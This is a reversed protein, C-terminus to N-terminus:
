PSREADLPTTTGDPKRLYQHGHPSTWIYTGPSPSTVRWRGFTKLRHHRRCLCSLNGSRTQTPQDAPHDPDYPEVHDLDTYRAQRECHPFVCTQDRLQVQRYQTSSPRYGPATLDTNLDIVPQIRVQTSTDHCWDRIQRIVLNRQGEELFAVPDIGIGDFDHLARLHVNLNLGRGAGAPDANAARALAGLAKAQRYGLPGETLAAAGQEIAAKLDLGDGLDVRACVTITGDFGIREEDFWVGHTERPEEVPSGEFDFEIPALLEFRLMTEELLRELRRQGVKGGYSCVQTDLYAMAERTLEPFAGITADAVRRLRWADVKGSQILAWCKPLRHRLEIAQGVLKKAALTTIDLIAGLEAICFEAVEPCGPGAIPQSQELYGTGLELSDFTAAYHISDAPHLDAWHAALELNAAELARIRDKNAKVASLVGAASLDAVGFVSQEIM